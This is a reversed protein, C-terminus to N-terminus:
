NVFFFTCEVDQFKQVKILSHLVRNQVKDGLRSWHQQERHVTQHSRGHRGELALGNDGCTGAACGCPVPTGSNCMIELSGNSAHWTAM